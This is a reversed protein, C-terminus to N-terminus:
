MKRVQYIIHYLPKSVSGICLRSQLSCSAILRTDAVVAFTYRSKTYRNEVNIKLKGTSNLNKNKECVELKM